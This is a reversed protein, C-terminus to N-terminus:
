QNNGSLIAEYQTPNKLLERASQVEIDDALSAEIGGKERYYRLAIEAELTKEAQKKIAWLQESLPQKLEKKIANLTNSFENSQNKMRKSLEEVNDIKKQATSEYTFTDKEMWEVFDSFQTDSLNFKQPSPISANELKFKNAYAFIKGQQVLELLLPNWQKEPLIVDPDVGGGDFVTRGNTTKFATKISDPIIGVSGDENRHTYDLAQICRGSPTYYKAITVKLQANYSLPRVNQVLGKGYSKQGMIVARDYDQLTGSVIESASASSHNVLVVVPIKLDMSSNQTLFKNSNEPRKGKTSVVLKGKPIFLNCIDRAEHLLGGPNNRLDLIISKAGESKLDKIAKAINKAGNETFSTFKIYGTNDDVLGYYPVNEITIKDRVVSVDNTEESGNRKIGLQINTKAQGRVLQNLEDNTKGLVTVGAATIVEDGIEIGANDAPGGSVVMSIFVRGKLRITSAGIGGYEGTSETRFDEIKDESIYVTYPDLNSLMSEVSTNLLQNPNVEDVYLENITKYLASYIEINKVIEFYRSNPATATLLLAVITISAIGLIRRKSM